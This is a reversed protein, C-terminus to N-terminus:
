LVTWSPFRADMSQLIQRLQNITGIIVGIIVGTIVGIIVGQYQVQFTFLHPFSILRFLSCVFLPWVINVPFILINFQSQCFTSLFSIPHYYYYYYNWTWDNSGSISGSFHILTSNSLSQCFTSSIPTPTASVPTQSTTFTLKGKISLRVNEPLTELRTECNRWMLERRYLFTKLSSVNIFNINMFILTATM